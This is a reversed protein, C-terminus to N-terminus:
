DVPVEPPREGTMRFIHLWASMSALAPGKIPTQENVWRWITSENVGLCKSTERVWGHIGFIHIGALRFEDATTIAPFRGPLELHPRPGDTPEPPGKRQRSSASRSPM